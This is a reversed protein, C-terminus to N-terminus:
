LPPCVGLQHTPLPKVGNIASDWSRCGIESSRRSVLSMAVSLPPAVKETSFFDDREHADVGDFGERGFELFQQNDTRIQTLLVKLRLDLRTWLIGDTKPWSETFRITLRSNVPVPHSIAPDHDPLM